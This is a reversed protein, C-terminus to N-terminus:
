KLSQKALLGAGIMSSLEKNKSEFIITNNKVFSPSFKNLVSIMKKEFLTFAGSLGGGISVKHPDLMNIFHCVAAGLNEGYADWIDKATEDGGKALNCLDMPSIESGLKEICMKKIAAISVNTEWNGDGVPSIAYELALGHAGTYIKGDVILGFGM